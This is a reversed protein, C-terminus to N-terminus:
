DVNETEMSGDPYIIAIKKGLKRAYRVTSWTGSRLQEIKSLPCAILVETEDVIDRNRNLYPAPTWLIRSEPYSQCYARKKSDNPPHVVILARPMLGNAIWHTVVSEDAQKDAGICDGHHFELVDSDGIISKLSTEFYMRQIVTMGLHTGTFGIKV